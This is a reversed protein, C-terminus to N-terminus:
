YNFYKTEVSAAMKKNLLPLLRNAEQLSNNLSYKKCFNIISDLSKKAAKFIEQNQNYQREIKTNQQYNQSSKYNPDLKSTGLALAMKAAVIGKKVNNFIGETVISANSVDGNILIVKDINKLVPKILQEELDNLSLIRKVEVPSLDNYSPISIIDEKYGLRNKIQEDIKVKTFGKQSNDVYIVRKGKNEIGPIKEKFVGLTYGNIKNNKQPNLFNLIIAIQQQLSVKDKYIKDEKFAKKSSSDYKSKVEIFVKKNNFYYGIDASNVDNKNNRTAGIKFSFTYFINPELNNIDFNEVNKEEKNQAQNFPLNLVDAEAIKGAEIASCEFNREELNKLHKKLEDLTGNGRKVTVGNITILENNNERKFDVIPEKETEIKFAKKFNESCNKNSICFNIWDKIINLKNNKNLENRQKNDFGIEKNVYKDLIEDTINNKGYKNKTGEVKIFSSFFDRLNAENLEEFKQKKYNWFLGSKKEKFAYYSNRIEPNNKIKLDSRTYVIYKNKEVGEEKLILEENVIERLTM